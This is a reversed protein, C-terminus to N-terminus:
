NIYWVKKDTPPAPTPPTRTSLASLCEVLENFTTLNSGFSLHGTHPVPPPCYTDDLDTNMRIHKRTNNTHGSSSTNPSHSAASSLPKKIGRFLDTSLQAVKVSQGQIKHRERDLKNLVELALALHRTRAYSSIMCNFSRTGVVLGDEDAKRVFEAALEPRSSSLIIQHLVNCNFCHPPSPPM